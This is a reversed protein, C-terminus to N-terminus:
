SANPDGKTLQNNLLGFAIIAQNSAALAQSYLLAVFDNSQVQRELVTWSKLWIGITNLHILANVASNHLQSITPVAPILPNM